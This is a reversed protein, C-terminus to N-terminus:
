RRRRDINGLIVTPLYRPVTGASGRLISVMIIKVSFTKPTTLNNYLCDGDYIRENKANNHIRIQM